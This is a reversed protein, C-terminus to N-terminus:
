EESETVKEIKIINGKFKKYNNFNGNFVLGNSGINEQMFPRQSDIVFEIVDNAYSRLGLNCTDVDDKLEVKFVKIVEGNDLTFHYKGNLDKGDFYTGMAVGIYEGDKIFGSENNLTLKNDVDVCTLSSLLKWQPSKKNTIKRIDMYTKNSLDGCGKPIQIEVLKIPSKNININNCVIQIDPKLTKLGCAQTNTIIFILNYILYFILGWFIKKTFLIKM